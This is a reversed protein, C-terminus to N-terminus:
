LRGPNFDKMEVGSEQAIILSSERVETWAVAPGLPESVVVISGAPIEALTTDYDRLVDFDRTYFLSRSENSSSYRVAYLCEGDAVAVSFQLAEEIGTEQRLQEIRGVLRELAGGPDSELGYTLALYFMLESDTNGEICNFLDPDVELM